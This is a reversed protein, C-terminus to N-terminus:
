RMKIRAGVFFNHTVIDLDAALSTGLGAFGIRSTDTGFIRYEGFLDVRDSICSSIGVIGQYAFTSYELNLALPTTPEVVDANVWVVGAGVGVYPTFRRFCTFDYAINLMGSYLNTKGDLPIQQGIVAAAGSGSVHDFTTNRYAFEGEVRVNPRVRRGIAGGFSWGDNMEFDISGTGGAGGAVTFAAAVDEPRSWGGFLSFYRCPDWCGSGGGCGGGLGGLRSGLGCGGGGCGGCGAGDCGGSAPGCGAPSCGGLRGGIGGFRGGSDCGGGACGSDCGSACGGGDCGSDCGNGATANKYATNNTTNGRFAAYNSTTQRNNQNNYIGNAPARYQQTPARYQQAQTQGNWQSQYGTGGIQAVSNGSFVFSVTACIAVFVFIQTKM